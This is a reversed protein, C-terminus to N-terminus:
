GGTRLRYRLASISLLAGLVALGAISLLADRVDGASVGSIIPDRIGNVIFSLPNYAAITKAPEVMLEEPFFATSLFLLVFVMPFLGQVVSSNGTRLAISAVIAGLALAAAWALAISVLAGGVGGDIQAGFVLGITFFWLSGFLALAGVGALRGLVITIRSIPASLLRDTFGSEIEIALAIAGSNGALMLSQMIAGALMFQLFSQVPPFGPLNIAEGAGGTQVALLLTPFVVIPALLQPRRFTQRVSRAGLARVVRLNTALASVGGRPHPPRDDRRLRRRPHPPGARALRGRHEGRRPRPGRYLNRGRRRRGRGPDHRRGPGAAAQRDTRSVREAEAISGEALQLRIHPSGISAKLEEPTGEAVLLGSDIIGVNDALQDAEELYQTTLFVTTGGDNLARVEEWITKRSVPDLGTTPEDLFLVRPEHVLAAALDLRRQMGGSYGGVRRDAADALDVKELLEDARRRGEAGPIGQLTAQLRILERGTMLPDLAAEQLAVGISARVERAQKVVDHGGVTARGATPLLLTTLMRVTTTKGAGNPGLFGYIEGEEVELDVGRVALVDDFSRELGEVAIAPVRGMEERQRAGAGRGRRAPARRPGLGGAVAPRDAAAALRPRGPGLDGPDRDPQRPRRRAREGPRRDDDGLAARGATGGAATGGGAGDALRARRGGRLARGPPPADRHPGAGCKVAAAAPLLMRYKAFGRNLPSLEPSLHNLREPTVGGLSETNAILVAALASAPLDPLEVELVEGGSESRLAEIAAACAAGVEPAVDESVPDRVVGIRLGAADGASLSEGYLVSALLRADAADACLPGSVIMTTVEAMHHGSMASRGFTPKLGTLGCYAAPFRISGIGDAGVAGATIGAAVTAASGSSSGGPCRETDWPNHAPGYVSMNGTSSAGAEHMNAVGVIVAGADRLARYPGSEGPEGPRMMEASGFRQARWPLPWEDKIVLPVGRLPGQPAEALMERSREPFTEVIANLAPNRQEIRALAADLLTAPDVEGAAVAAAQGRLSLDLPDSM